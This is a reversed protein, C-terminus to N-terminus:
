GHQPTSLLSQNAAQSTAAVVMSGGSSDGVVAFSSAMYNGLLAIAASHTGDTVTLTGGTQNSNPLYGLTTQAGFIIGPLDIGDQSGFGSVTGTFTSPQGLALTGTSGAFAVSSSDAAALDLTAGAGITASGITGAASTGVQLTTGPAAYLGIVGDGNLDQNFVLELSELTSNTGSVAGILSSIYNGNSDTSWVTYQHTVSNEWAVDYGTATQVAGIPTWPSLEGITVPAGNLMLDPGSGGSGYLAYDNGVEVLSTSGFSNTDTQVVTPPPPPPPGITGDGNLDQNFALELSELTSNTGSVAGILNSIYNGNSDTSWVTYQNASNRWAVDYGTATLAAGIPTWGGLEGITVPAGNLM